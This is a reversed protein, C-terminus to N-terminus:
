NGTDLLLSLVKQQVEMNWIGYHYKVRYPIMVIKYSRVNLADRSPSGPGVGALFLGGCNYGWVLNQLTYMNYEGTAVNLLLLLVRDSTSRSQRSALQQEEASIFSLMTRKVVYRSNGEEERRGSLLFAKHAVLVFM